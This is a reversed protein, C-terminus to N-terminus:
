AKLEANHTLLRKERKFRELALFILRNILGSNSLGSVEWLKPYMSIATFGPLTNLENVVLTQDSKLFFDVRAMGECALTKFTLVALHRIRATLARPLEVPM